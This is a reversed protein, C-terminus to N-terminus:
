PRLATALHAAARLALAVVTLTPNAQSSTPFVASGAVQLNDIGHVMCNADVVSCRPDTGMRATGIHHGGYAGYRIMELEIAAPDYDFRGIGSSRVDQALLALARSVTAVDGATYHWDILLKPMGLSDEDNSLSVRSQPNPWQEAHFDISFLNARPKVIISPFKREAFLRHRALHAAFATADFPRRLVNRLHQWWIWVGAREDGTLRKAYEYPIAVKALYLLSLMANRHEPNTIRPHHLRAIFNGVAYRRQVEPRLALRRRCYVGENSIDYGHRVAGLPRDVNLEGVTGAIHCMYYRGVVDHSNGVGHPHIDRSSLLLRAVELGGAALAFQQARVKFQKGRLTKVILADTHTGASNLQVATVNAHLLVRVNTAARLKHVYRAGFDTPCSFCELTNT